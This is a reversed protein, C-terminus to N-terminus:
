DHEYSVIKVGGDRMVAVEVHDGFMDKLLEEDFASVFESADNYAAVVPEMGPVPVRERATDDWNYTDYWTLVANGEDDEEGAHWEQLFHKEDFALEMSEPDSYVSFYCPDGDCFYGTYQHWSFWELLPHKEFLAKTGDAFAQKSKELYENRLAKIQEQYEKTMDIVATM